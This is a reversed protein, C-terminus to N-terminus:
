YMKESFKTMLVWLYNKCFFVFNRWVFRILDFYFLFQQYRTLLLPAQNWRRFTLQVTTPYCCKPNKTTFLRFYCTAIKILTMRLRIEIWDKFYLTIDLKLLYITWIYLSNGFIFNECESKLSKDLSKEGRFVGDFWFTSVFDIQNPNVSSGNIKSFKSSWPTENWEFTLRVKKIDFYWSLVENDLSAKNTLYLYACVCLYLIIQPNFM